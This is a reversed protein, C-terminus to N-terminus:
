TRPRRRPLRRRAPPGKGASGIAPGRRAPPAAAASKPLAADIRAQADRILREYLESSPGGPPLSVTIRRAEEAFRLDVPHPSQEEEPFRPPGYATAALAREVVALQDPTASAVVSLVDSVFEWQELGFTPPLEAIFSALAQVRAASPEALWERWVEEVVRDWPALAIFTDVLNHSWRDGVSGLADRFRRVVDRYSASERLAQWVRQWGRYPIADYAIHLGQSTDELNAAERELRHVVFEAVLLPWDKAIRALLYELDYRAGDLRAVPVLDDLLQAATGEDLAPSADDGMGMWVESLAVAVRESGDVRVHRLLNRRVPAPLYPMGLAGVAASRVEESPDALLGQLIGCEAPSWAERRWAMHGLGFAAAARIRTDSHRAAATVLTEYRDTARLNPFLYSLWAARDQRGDLITVALEGARVADQRGLKDLLPGIDAREGAASFRDYEKELRGLLASADGHSQLLEFAVRATVRDVQQLHSRYRNAGWPRDFMQGVARVLRAEAREKVSRRIATARAKVEEFRASRAIWLLDDSIRIRVLPDTSRRAVEELCEFAARYHPLWGEEEEQTVARGFYAMPPRLADLLTKVALLRGRPEQELALDRLLYLVGRRFEMTVQPVVGFQSMTIEHERSRTEMGTKALLASAVGLPSHHHQSWGSERTWRRLADLARRQVWLPRLPLYETADSLLRIAHGPNPNLERADGRGIRWLLDVAEDFCTEDNCARVLLQPAHDRIVRESPFPGWLGTEDGVPNAVLWQCLELARRAQIGAVPVLADLLDARKQNPATRFASLFESWVDDFVRAEAGTASLRWDLEAVNRVVNPLCSAGFHQLCEREFGTPRGQADLLADRCLADGLVDPVVRSGRGDTRLIEAQELAGITERVQSPPVTYLAAVQAAGDDTRVDLPGAVGLLRLLRAALHRDVHAGITGLVEEQYHTFVEHRFVDSQSLLQPHLSERRLLRAAILAVLPSDQSLQALPEASRSLKPGLEKKVLAIMENLTLDPLDGVDRTREVPVGGRQLAVAVSPRAWPRVGLILTTRQKRLRVLALLQALDSRRHADDCIIVVRGDPLERISNPEATGDDRVWRVVAAKSPEIRRAVELLLRSKGSGGRGGLVVVDVSRDRTANLVDRLQPQRGVLGRAHHFTGQASLLRGFYLPTRLFTRHRRDLAGERWELEHLAGLAEVSLEAPGRYTRRHQEAEVRRRFRELLQRRPGSERNAWRGRADTKFFALVPIGHERAFNYEAETYSIGLEPHVSGYRGAIVLLMVHCVRLADLCTELPPEPTAFLHEMAVVYRDRGLVAILRQRDRRLDRFTSSLFAHVVGGM